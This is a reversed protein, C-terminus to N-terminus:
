SERIESSVVQHNQDFVVEGKFLKGELYYPYWLPDSTWMESFPIDELPFWKPAMEETEIPEGEFEWTEFIDMDIIRDTNHFRLTGIQRCDSVQLGSEEMVERTVAAEPTEGSEVKGGYGNWKGEGFGRKKLALLIQGEKRILCLNTQIIPKNM